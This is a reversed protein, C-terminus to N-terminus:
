VGGKTIHGTMTYLMIGDPGQICKVYKKEEEWITVMKDNLVPEGTSDTAFSISLQLLLGEILDLTLEVERIRRRCHRSLENRTIAKHITREHFSQGSRATTSM